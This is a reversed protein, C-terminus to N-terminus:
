GAARLKAILEAADDTEPQETSSGGPKRSGGSLPQPDKADNLAKTTEDLKSKLKAITLQQAKFAAFRHRMHALKSFHEQASKPQSDFMDYEAKRLGAIEDDADEGTPDVYDPVSKGIEDMVKDFLQKNQTKQQDRQMEELRASEQRKKQNGEWNAREGQIAEQADEEMELLRNRMGLIQQAHDEGFIERAKAPAGAHPTRLLEVFDTEFKAPAGDVRQLADVYSKVRNWTKAYPKEFKEKFEPSAEFQAMSLKEDRAKIEKEMEALKSQLADTNKGREEADKIKAELEARAKRDADREAKTSDFEQRLQKPQRAKEAAAEAKYKKVLDKLVKPDTIADDPDVDEPKPAVAAKEAAPKAPATVPAKAAPPAAAKAPEPKPADAKPFETATKDPTPESDFGANKFAAEFQGVDADSAPTLTEPM